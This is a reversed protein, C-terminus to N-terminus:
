LRELCYVTPYMEGMNVKFAERRHKFKEKFTDQGLIGDIQKGAVALFTLRGGPRLVRAFEAFMLPFGKKSGKNCRNGFPLDSVLVDISATRLPLSAANWRCYSASMPHHYHTTEEAAATRRRKPEEPEAPAPKTTTPPTVLGYQGALYQFCDINTSAALCESPTLDGGLISTHPQLLSAEILTTGSGGLPDCVVDGPQVDSLKVLAYGIPVIMSNESKYIRVENNTSSPRLKALLTKTEPDKVDVVRTGELLGKRLEKVREEQQLQVQYKEWGSSRVEGSTMENREKKNSKNFDYYLKVQNAPHLCVGVVVRDCNLVIFVQLTYLTMSARWSFRETIVEGVSREVDPSKYKPKIQRHGKGHRVTTCRFLIKSTLTKTLADLTADDPIDGHVALSWMKIAKVWNADWKDERLESQLKELEKMDDIPYEPGTEGVLGCVQEVIRLRHVRAINERVREKAVDETNLMFRVVGPLKCDVFGGFLEGDVAKEIDDRLIFELGDPTTCFVEM